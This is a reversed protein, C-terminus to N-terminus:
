SLCIGFNFVDIVIVFVSFFDSGILLEYFSFVGFILSSFVKLLLSDSFSSTSRSLFDTASPLAPEFFNYPPRIACSSAIGSNNCGCSSSESICFCLSNTSISSAVTKGGVAVSLSLKYATDNGNRKLIM